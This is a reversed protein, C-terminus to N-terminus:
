RSACEGQPAWPFLAMHSENRTATGKATIVPKANDVVDPGAAAAVRVKLAFRLPAVSIGGVPEGPVPKAAMVTSVTASVMVTKSLKVPNPDGVVADCIWQQKAWGAVTPTAVWTGLKTLKGVPTM